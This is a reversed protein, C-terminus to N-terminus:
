MKLKYRNERGNGVISCLPLIEKELYWITVNFKKSLEKKTFTYNNDFSKIRLLENIIRFKKNNEYEWMNKLTLNNTLQEFKKDIDINPDEFGSIMEQFIRTPKYHGKKEKEILGNALCENILKTVIPKSVKHEEQIQRTSFPEENFLYISINFAIEQGKNERKLLYHITPNNILEKFENRIQAM